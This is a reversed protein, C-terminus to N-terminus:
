SYHPCDSNVAHSCPADDAPPVALRDIRVGWRLGGFTRAYDTDPAPMVDIVRADLTGRDSIRRIRAGPAIRVLRGTSGDLYTVDYRLRDM